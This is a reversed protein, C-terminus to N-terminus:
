VGGGVRSDATDSSLEAIMWAPPCAKSDVQIAAKRRHADERTRAMMRSLTEKVLDLSITKAAEETRFLFEFYELAAALRMPKTPLEKGREWDSLYQASIEIAKAFGEQTMGITKRLFRVASGELPAAEWILALGITYHLGDMNPIRPSEGCACRLVEIAKLTIQHKEEDLGALRTYDFDRSGIEYPKGCTECNM